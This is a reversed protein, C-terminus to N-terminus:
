HRVAPRVKLRVVYVTEIVTAGLAHYAYLLSEVVNRLRDDIRVSGNMLSNLRVILRIVNGIRGPKVVFKHIDLCHGDVLRSRADIIRTGLDRGVILGIDHYFCIVIKLYEAPLKLRSVVRGLRAQDRVEVRISRREVINIVIAMCIVHSSTHAAMAICLHTPSVKTKNHLSLSHKFRFTDSWSSDRLRLALEM